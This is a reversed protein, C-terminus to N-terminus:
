EISILNEFDEVLTYTRNKNSAISVNLFRQKVWKDITYRAQRPTIHFFDAFQHSTIERNESFLKLAQKQQPSLMRLIRSQDAYGKINSEQAHAKVNEFAEAMGKLFYEVFHTLDAQSREGEYYDEDNGVTLAGYYAELDKAYYAELSYIGKLDYSNQHLIFNVLLRATRGNGDYFPHITAFEYHALAAVLPIPLQEKIMQNVWLILDDMLPNVDEAKPPIYVVLKGSRIVNQGDRYPTPKAKGHFSLGHLMQIISKTLRNSKLAENAVYELADYYNRVEDEDKQKHPFHTQKKILERVEDLTLRNGEIYTSHHTSAIKASERLSIIMHATLPSAMVVQRSTEIKGLLNIINVNITYKPNFAM